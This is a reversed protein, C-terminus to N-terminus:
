PLHCAYSFFFHSGETFQSYQSVLHPGCVLTNLANSANATLHHVIYISSQCQCQCQDHRHRNPILLMKIVDLVSLIMIFNAINATKTRRILQHKGYVTSYVTMNEMLAQALSQVNLSIIIKVIQTLCIKCFIMTTQVRNFM